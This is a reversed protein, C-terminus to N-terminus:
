DILGDILWNILWGILWDILWNFLWDTMDILCDILSVTLWDIFCDILWDSLHFLWDILLDFLWDTLWDIMWDTVIIHMTKKYQYRSVILPSSPKDPNEQYWLCGAWPLPMCTCISLSKRSYIPTWIPTLWYKNIILNVLM